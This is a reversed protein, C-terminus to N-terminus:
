DHHGVGQGGSVSDTGEGLIKFGAVLPQPRQRQNSHIHPELARPLWTEQM